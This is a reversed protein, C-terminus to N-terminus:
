NTICTYGLCVTTSTHSPKASFKIATISVIILAVGIILLAITSILQCRVNKASALYWFMKTIGILLFCAGIIICVVGLSKINQAHIQEPTFPISDGCIIGTTRGSADPGCDSYAPSAAILSILILYLIKIITFRM